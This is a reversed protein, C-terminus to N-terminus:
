ETDLPWDMRALQAPAIWAIVMGAAFVGLALGVGTAALGARAMTLPNGLNLTMYALVNCAVIAGKGGIARWLLPLAGFHAAGVFMLFTLGGLMPVNQRQPLEGLAAQFLLTVGVAIAGALLVNVRYARFMARVFARRGGYRGTMFFYPWDGRATLWGGLGMVTMSLPALMVSPAGDRFNTVFRGHGFLAAGWCALVDFLLIFLFLAVFGALMGAPGIQRALAPALIPVQAQRLFAPQWVMVAHLAAGLGGPAPAPIRARAARNEQLTTRREARGHHFTLTTAVALACAAVVLGASPASLTVIWRQWTPVFSLVMGGTMVLGRVGKVWAREGREGQGGVGLAALAVFAAAGPAPVGALVLPLVLAACLLFIVLLAARREADVLGPVTAALPNRIQRMCHFGVAGIGFMGALFIPNFHGSQGIDPMVGPPHRRLRGIWVPMQVLYLATALLGPNGTVFARSGYVRLAAGLASVPSPLDPRATGTM